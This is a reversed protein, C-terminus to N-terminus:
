KSIWRGEPKSRLHIEAKADENVTQVLCMLFITHKNATNGNLYM